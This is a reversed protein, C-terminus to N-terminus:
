VSIRSCLESRKCAQHRRVRSVVNDKWEVLAKAKAFNNKKLDKGYKGEKLYFREIYDDIMRKMTFNPAIHAISNKIYQIWEPSYGKSNKAFYLPIIENELMSYITAADLKDQQGQDTFTRKDTM